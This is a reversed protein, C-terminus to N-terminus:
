LVTGYTAYVRLDASLRLTKDKRVAARMRQIGVDFEKKTLVALQSTHSPTVKGNRLAEDAAVDGPIHMVERTHIDAFGAERMFMRLQECSPYRERDIDLTGDFYDYVWWQDTGTHPDLAITMMSGGHRLVRSAEVIFARKDLFHHHANIAFVREFSGKVFPLAEARAQLLAATPANARARGLMQASLDVGTIRGRVFQLWHGTGCGAELVGNQNNAVFDTLAQEIGAYDEEAYRSDYSAAIADYDTHRM